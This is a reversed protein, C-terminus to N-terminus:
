EASVPTSDEPRHDRFTVWNLVATHGAAAAVIDTWCWAVPGLGLGHAATCFILPTEPRETGFRGKGTWFTHIRVTRGRITRVDLAVHGYGARGPPTM